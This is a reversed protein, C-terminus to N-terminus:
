HDLPNVPRGDSQLSRQAAQLTRVVRLASDAGTRPPAGDQVCAIFHRALVRLPEEMEVTPLHVDGDRLTLYEDFGTFAPPREYGKDYVRLKDSAVDDFVAMKNSCVVTLRREKHPDLWSLHVHAMQGSAFRLNVFVVDEIGPQLYSQGRASVSVPEHGILADIMSFDHPGFSWLANEDRRLRGLNVRTSYLYYLEGLEGSGLLSVLRQFVPHYVMLHGVLLVRRHARAAAEVRLAEAYSLALPKEVLVHKDARLAREALEAHTPAPTAVVVADVEPDALVEALEATTRIGPNIRRARELAGSDRDCVWRLEAGPQGSFVRVHHIGWAGAGLVAVRLQGM